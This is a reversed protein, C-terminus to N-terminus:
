FPESLCRPLKSDGAEGIGRTEKVRSLHVIARHLCLTPRPRLSQKMQLLSRTIIRTAHLSSLCRFPDLSKETAPSTPDTVVFLKKIKLCYFFLGRGLSFVFRQTTQIVSFRKLSYIQLPNCVLAPNWRSVHRIGCASNPNVLPIWKLGTVCDDAAVQGM